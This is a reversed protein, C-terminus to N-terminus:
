NFLKGGYEKSVVHTKGEFEMLRFNFRAAFAYIEKRLEKKANSNAYHTHINEFLPIKLGSVKELVRSHGYISVAKKVTIESM